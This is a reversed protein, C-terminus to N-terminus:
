PKPHFALPKGTELLTKLNSFVAVWGRAVADRYGPTLREHTPRLLMTGPGSETIESTLIEPPMDGQEAPPNPWTYSLLQPPKSALIEGQSFPQGDATLFKLPSGVQRGSEVNWEGGGLNKGGTTAQRCKGSRMRRRPLISPNSSRPIGWPM